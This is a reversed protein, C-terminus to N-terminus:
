QWYPKTGNAKDHIKVDWIKGRPGMAIRYCFEGAECTIITKCGRKEVTVASLIRAIVTRASNRQSKNLKAIQEQM